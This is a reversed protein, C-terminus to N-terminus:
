LSNAQRVLENKRSELEAILEKALPEVTNGQEDTDEYKAQEAALTTLLEEATQIARTLMAVKSGEEGVETEISAIQQQLATIRDLRDQRQAQAAAIVARRDREAQAIAEQEEREADARAKAEVLQRQRVEEVRAREAAVQDRQAQLEAERARAQNAVVQLAAQEVAVREAEVAAIEADKAAQSVCSALVLLLLTAVIARIKAASSTASTTASPLLRAERKPLSNKM